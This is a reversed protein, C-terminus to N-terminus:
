YYRRQKGTREYYKDKEEYMMKEAEKLTTRIESGSGLAYGCSAIDNNEAIVNFFEKMKNDLIEISINKIVIVFEDGSIRCLFDNPFSEKM